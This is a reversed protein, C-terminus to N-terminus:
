QTTFTRTPVTLEFHMAGTFEAVSVSPLDVPDAASNISTAPGRGVITWDFETAAPMPLESITPLTLSGSTTFIHFRAGSNTVDVRYVVGSTTSFEFPTAATIGTVGTVPGILTPAPPMTFTVNTDAALGPFVFESVADGGPVALTSEGYFSSTGAAIVPIRSTADNTTATWLVETSPAFQHTLTVTPLPYGAPPTLTGTLGASQPQALTLNVVHDGGSTVATDGSVAYGPYATPRNDAGRTVQIAYLKGTSNAAMPRWTAAVNSYANVGAALTTTVGGTSWFLLTSASANANTLTGDITASSSTLLSILGGQTPRTLVPDPRTLGKYYNVAPIGSTTVLGETGIVYIDYPVKVDSFSFNGGADTTTAPKGVLRVVAGMVPTRLSGAVTITSLTLMLPASHVKDGATGTIMLESTGPTATTDVVLSLTRSEGLLEFTPTVGAPQGTISLNVPDAFGGNRTIEIAVSAGGSINLSLAGPNVAISFDAPASADQNSSVEGCAPGGLVAAVLAWVVFLSQNKM